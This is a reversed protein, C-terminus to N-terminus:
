DEDHRIRLGGSILYLLFANLVIMFWSLPFAFRRWLESDFFTDPLLMGWPLTFLSFWLASEGSGEAGTKLAYLQVAFPIAALLLFGLAFNRGTKSKEIYVM